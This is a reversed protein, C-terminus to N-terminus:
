NTEITFENYVGGLNKIVIRFGGTWKPNWRVFCVDLNDTDSAILNGNEDYVYLDLDTDGDGLVYVEAVQDASFTDNLTVTGGAPVRANQIGPGRTRGAQASAGAFLTLAFALCAAFRIVTNM